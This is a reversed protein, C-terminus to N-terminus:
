QRGEAASVVAMVALWVCEWDGVGGSASFSGGAVMVGATEEAGGPAVADSATRAKGPEQFARLTDDLYRSLVTQIDGLQGFEEAGITTQHSEEAQRRADEAQRYWADCVIQLMPLDVVHEEQDTLQPVLVEEVLAVDIPLGLRQAPQVVAKYAQSPSFRTLRILHHFITPISADEQFETLQALFDERLAIVVHVPLRIDDLCTRLEHRFTQRVAPAHRQFFEEFQDLIIVVTKGLRATAQRVGDLLPQELIDRDVGLDRVLAEKLATTPDNDVMRVLVWTYQEEPLSPLLGAQLLSTKGTGSAGCLLLLRSAEFESQLQALDHDRGYFLDTDALGFPDLFKYPRRPSTSPAVQRYVHATPVQFLTAVLKPLEFTGVLVVTPEPWSGTALTDKLAESFAALTLVRANDLLNSSIRLINANAKPVLFLRDHSQALFGELKAEFGPLDVAGLVPQREKLQIAGTCWVDGVEELNDFVLPRGCHILALLYALDLSSGQWTRDSTDAKEYLRATAQQFLSVTCEPALDEAAEHVEKLNPSQPSAPRYGQPPSESLSVSLYRVCARFVYKRAVPEVNPYALHIM